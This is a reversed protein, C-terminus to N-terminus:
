GASLVEYHYGTARGARENLIQELVYAITNKQSLAGSGWATSGGTIFIRVTREPKTVYSQREDRFGLAHIRLDDGFFPGAMHGVFPALRYPPIWTVDRLRRVLADHDGPPVDYANALAAATLPNDIAKGLVQFLSLPATGASILATGEVSGQGSVKEIFADHTVQTWDPLWWGHRWGSDHSSPRWYPTTCHSPPPTTPQKM